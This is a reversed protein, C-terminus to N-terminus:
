ELRSVMLPCKPGQGLEGKVYPRTTVVNRKIVQEDTERFVFNTLLVYYLVKMEVLAFRLGPCARPGASFTLMNSFHWPNERVSDPLTDWRDPRFEWADEGWVQKDMNFAECSVHVVTGKPIVFSRRAEDIKNERNRVPQSTPIVDRETAVRLTSHIPPILRLSERTVNHLLPLASIKGTLVQIQAEDLESLSPTDKALCLLEERLRDQVGPNQALLLLTWTMSLSSTDSGAFIMSNINNLIDDDTIRDEPSLSKSMNSKLSEYEDGSLEGEVIKAKKEQILRGAVRHIVARCRELTRTSRSPFITNLFPLYIILLTRIFSGRTLGIEFMDRYAIFLENSEDEMSNFNYDFGALGIVDLTARSLVDYVDIQAIISGDHFRRKWLDTIQLGKRFAIEALSAMNQNSFAPSAVRRQRKHVHGEASFMGCGILSTILRRTAWPKEYLTYNKSIHAMSVPDFTILREDWPTLGRIRVSRGYHKVLHEHVRPTVSPDRVHQIHNKLWGSIPPGPLDLQESSPLKRYAIYVVTACLASLIYPNFPLGM